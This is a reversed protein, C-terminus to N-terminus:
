YFCAEEEIQEDKAKQAAIQNNVDGFKDMEAEIATLKSELTPDAVGNKEIQELREDNAKKFEEFASAMADVATKVEVQEM